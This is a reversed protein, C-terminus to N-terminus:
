FGACTASKKKSCRRRADQRESQLESEAAQEFFDLFERQTDIWEGSRRLEERAFEQISSLMHYRPKRGDKGM